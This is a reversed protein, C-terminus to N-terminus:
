GAAPGATRPARARRRARRPRRRGWATSRRSGGPRRRPRGGRRPPRRPAPVSSGGSTSVRRWAGALDGAQEVVEGARQRPPSPSRGPPPARRRGAPRARRDRAPRAGSTARRRRDADVLQAGRLEGGQAAAQAGVGLPPGQDVLHGHDRARVGRERGDLRRQARRAHGGHQPLAPAVELAGLQAVQARPAPPARGARATAPPRAARGRRPEVRRRGRGDGAGRGRARGAGRARRAQGLAEGGHAGGHAAVRPAGDLARRRAAPRRSATRRAAGRRARSLTSARTTARASRGGASRSRRSSAELPHRALAVRAVDRLRPLAHRQQRHVGGLPQLPRHRRDDVGARAASRAAAGTATSARSPRRARRPVASYRAVLSSRRARASPSVKRASYTARLRGRSTSITVPLWPLWPGPGHSRANWRAPRPGAVARRGDGPREADLDCPM